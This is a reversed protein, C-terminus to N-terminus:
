PMLTDSFDVIKIKSLFECYELFTFVEASTGSTFDFQDYQPLNAVINHLKNNIIVTPFFYFPIDWYEFEGENNIAGIECKVQHGRFLTHTREDSIWDKKLEGLPGFRHLNFDGLENVINLVIKFDNEPFDWEDFDINEISKIDTIQKGEFFDEKLEDPLLSLNLHKKLFGEWLILTKKNFDNPHNKQIEMLKLLFANHDIFKNKSEAKVNKEKKYLESEFHEVLDLLKGDEWTEESELEGTEKYYPWFGDRKGNKWIGESRIQGNHHYHKFLGNRLNNKFYGEEAIQGNDYYSTKYIGPKKLFDFIGMSCNVIYIIYLLVRYVM